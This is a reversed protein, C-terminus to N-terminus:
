KGNKVSLAKIIKSYGRYQPDKYWVLITWLNDTEYFNGEFSYSDVSLVADSKNLKVYQYDYIGRKLRLTATYHTGSKEMRILRLPNWNIFSGYLYINEGTEDPPTFRFIINIYDSTMEYFPAPILAGDNDNDGRFYFRSTEIGEPTAFAPDGQYKSLNTIDIQRYSNGPRIGRISIQYDLGDTTRFSVSDARFNGPYYKSEYIKQNEIIEIGEFYDRFYGGPLTLSLNLTLAKSLDVPFLPAEYISESRFDATFTAEDSIVFFYGSAYVMSTDTVDTVSFMWKTRFLFEIGKARDPFTGSFHYRADQNTVPLYEFDPSRFINESGSYFFNDRLPNGNRDCPKFVIAIEPYSSSNIDFEIAIKEGLDPNIVPLNKGSPFKYCVLAKVEPVFSYTSVTLLVQLLLLIFFRSM